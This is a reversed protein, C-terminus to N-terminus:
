LRHKQFDSVLENYGDDGDFRFKICAGWNVKGENENLIKFIGTEQDTSDKLLYEALDLPNEMRICGSSYARETKDFLEKAPTDHLYVDFKNPFM